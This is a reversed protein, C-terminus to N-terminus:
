RVQQHRRVHQHRRVQQSRVQQHRRVQKHEDSLWKRYLPDMAECPVLSFKEICNRAKTVPGGEPRGQKKGSSNGRAVPVDSM